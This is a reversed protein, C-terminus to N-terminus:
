GVRDPLLLTSNYYISYVIRRSLLNHARTMCGSKAAGEYAACSYCARIKGHGRQIAHPSIPNLHADIATATDGKLLLSLKVRGYLTTKM